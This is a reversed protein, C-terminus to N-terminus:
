LIGFAQLGHRMISAVARTLEGRNQTIDWATLPFISVVAWQMGGVIAQLKQTKALAWPVTQPLLKPDGRQYSGRRAGGQGLYTAWARKERLM